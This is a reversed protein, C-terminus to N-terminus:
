GSTSVIDPTSGSILAKRRNRRTSKGMNLAGYTPTQAHCNPCLVRLNLSRHDMADGNIHDITLVTNGTSPNIGSFGGPVCCDPSQCRCKAENLLYQRIILSLSWGSRNSGNWRGALWDDVTGSGRALKWASTCPVCRKHRNQTTNECDACVRLVITRKPVVSNNHKASCSRSCYKAASYKPTFQTDCHGCSIPLLFRRASCACAHSCFLGRAGHGVTYNSKCHECAVTLGDASHTAM